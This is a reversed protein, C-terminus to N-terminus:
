LLPEKPNNSYTTSVRLRQAVCGWDKCLRKSVTLMTMRSLDPDKSKSLTVKFGKGEEYGSTMTFGAVTDHPNPVQASNCVEEVLGDVGRRSYSIQELLGATRPVKRVAFDRLDVENLLHYLLAEYGGDDLQKFIAGFYDFDQKHVPSVTPV